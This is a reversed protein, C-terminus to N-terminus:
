SRDCSQMRQPLVSHKDFHSVFSTKTGENHHAEGLTNIGEDLLDVAKSYQRAKLAATGKAVLAKGDLPPARGGATNALIVLTVVRLLIACLVMNFIFYIIINLSISIQTSADRVVGFLTM